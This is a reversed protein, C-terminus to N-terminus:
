LLRMEFRLRYWRGPMPASAVEIYETDLVNTADISFKARETKFSAGLDVLWYSTYANRDLYRGTLMLGFREFLSVSTQAALQHRLNSLAYRSIAEGSSEIEMDLWTYNVRLMEWTLPGAITKKRRLEYNFDLGTTTVVDYNRPQWPELESDRTWDILDSAENMFVSVQGSHIDRALKLGAEYNNSMEPDLDPNGINTPGVYYLDTYTPIRFSQGWSAFANVHQTLGFNVDASPLIQTGFDTSENVYAGTNIVLRERMLWIRHELFLGYNDRRRQGLNNSNIAEQRYELGVGVTGKGYSYTGHLEGGGVDTRHNNQFIEPAERFLTYTDFNKRIYGKSRLQFAGKRITHQLAALYTEVNEQSTSDIPFAYFGSAGFDNNVYSGMVDFTGVKTEAQSQYFVSHRLYDTNPRYGGSAGRSLVLMHKTKDVALHAAAGTGYAFYPQDSFDADEGQSVSTQVFVGSEDLPETIINIVGSFSNLGFRAAAPGKIVEIQRISALELGLNMNHHGTQPDSVKIGNVLVLTQEFTGGRLSVDAQAGWAGRQRFDLGSIHQLLENVSNVPLQEIQERTIVQVNRGADMIPTKIGHESMTFERLQVSDQAQIALPIGIIFLLKRM